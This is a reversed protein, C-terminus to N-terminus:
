TGTLLLSGHEKSFIWCAYFVVPLTLALQLWNWYELDMLKYLPNNPIMDSMSIIFVPISFLLAIKMKQWLKDYTQEEATDTPEIPVLDMGCIPCSGPEDEVIEPHMPCTYQAKQNIVPQPVLDMGCVPCDGAKDYVKDGECHMPCYYNGKHNIPPISAQKKESSCCSKAPAEVANLVSIQYTSEKGGLAAQLKELPVHSQMELTATKNELNVEANSIGEAKTLAEEVHKRCGNCTMGQIHYTHTM